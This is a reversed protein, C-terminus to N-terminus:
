SIANYILVRISNTEQVWGSKLANQSPIFLGIFM